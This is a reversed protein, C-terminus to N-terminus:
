GNKEAYEAATLLPGFGSVQVVARWRSQAAEILKYSM